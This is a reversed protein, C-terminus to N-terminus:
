LKRSSIMLATETALSVSSKPERYALAARIARVTFFGGAVQSAQTWNWIGQLLSLSGRGTNQGPSNWPGYLGHPQLTDSVVSHSQSGPPLHYLIQRGICSIHTQDRYWSSGRSFSIVVWQLIRAQIIGHVSVMQNSINSTQPRVGRGRGRRGQSWLQPVLLIGRACRDSSNSPGNLHQSPIEREKM